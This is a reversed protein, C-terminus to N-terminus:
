IDREDGKNWPRFNLLDLPHPWSGTFRIARDDITLFAPPKVEPWEVEDVWRLDPNDLHETQRAAWARLWFQMAWIGGEQHSRTSYIAVRFTKLAEQIFALAGTVPEDSIIHAAIWPTEYSHIVGDFDLCLIPKNSAM